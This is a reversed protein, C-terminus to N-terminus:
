SGPVLPALQSLVGEAVNLAQNLTATDTPNLTNVSVVVGLKSNPLFLVQTGWGIIGGDKGIWQQNLAPNPLPLEWGTGIGVLNPEANTVQQWMQQVSSSALVQSGGAPGTRFQLKVLRALDDLTSILGGAPIEAGLNTYPAVPANLGSATAAVSVYGTSAPTGAPIDSPDWVSNTMGLPALINRTVYQEYPVGAIQSLAYGLVAFGFNSYLYGTGPEFAATTGPLQQLMQQVSGGPPNTDDPLGSSHSALQQFTPSITQGDPSRYVIGPVHQNVPDTLQLTGADRLQMLMIATFMKTVSGARFTTDAQYPQQATLDACGAGYVAVVDQDYVVAWGIGALNNTTRFSEIQNSLSTLQQQVRPNAMFMRADAGAPSPLSQAPCNPLMAQAAAPHAPPPVASPILAVAVLVIACAVRGARIPLRLLM